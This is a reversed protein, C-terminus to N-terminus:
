YTSSYQTASTKTGLMASVRPAILFGSLMGVLAGLGTKKAMYGGAAGALAQNYPLTNVMPVYPAAVGAATGFLVPKVYGMFGGRAKSYARRGYYRAGKRYRRAMSRVRKSTSRSGRSGRFVAWAKKSVGYKKIIARPLGVM